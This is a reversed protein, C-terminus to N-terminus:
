RPRAKTALVAVDIKVGAIDKSMEDLKADIDTYSSKLQRISAFMLGYLVGLSTGASLLSMVVALPISVVM